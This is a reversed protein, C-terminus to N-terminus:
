CPGDSHLFITLQHVQQEIQEPTRKLAKLLRRYNDLYLCYKPHEHETRRQFEILIQVARQSLPEAKEFRNTACLLAALNNLASAVKPHDPGYSEEDIALARRYLPEAEGLRNTDQLLGALNNLASAVNPHDPGLCHEWIALARRFLPEAEDTRGDAYLLGALNNLAIAVNPHDPSLSAELIQAM